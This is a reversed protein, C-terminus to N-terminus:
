LGRFATFPLGLAVIFLLSCAAAVIAGLIMKGPYSLSRDPASAIVTTMFVAPALGLREATLAFVALAVGIAFFSVWDPREIDTDDRLDLVIISIALLLLAIGTLIPFAGSGLRRASGFGLNMGGTIFVLSLLLLMVGGIAGLRANPANDQSQACRLQLLWKKM